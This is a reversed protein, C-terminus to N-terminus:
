NNFFGASTKVMEKLAKFQTQKPKNKNTRQENNM